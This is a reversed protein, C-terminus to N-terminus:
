KAVSAGASAPREAKVAISSRSARQGPEAALQAFAVRQLAVAVAPAIGLDEAAREREGLTRPDVGTVKGFVVLAELYYGHVSAHYQDHAWLDVQGFTLGNYPNADAVREAIARTWAEGVPIVGDIDPSGARVARAAAGLDSAMGAVPRGSWPSGPRYTLDARTWTAMLEVDVAPNARAFMRALRAADRAYATADGPRDRDLTSYEQLVVVDWARDILRRRQDYHFGLSQGGQAEMSVAYSLGAEEAFTAFLAPVGGQAEGNLDAVREARYRRVASLAGQTFSNGVFLMTRPRPAQAAVPASLILFLAGLLRKMAVAHRPALSATLGSMARGVRYVHM